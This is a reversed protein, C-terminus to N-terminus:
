KIHHLSCWGADQSVSQKMMILLFIKTMGRSQPFHMLLDTYSSLDLCSPVVLCWCFFFDSCRQHPNQITALWWRLLSAEKRSVAVQYHCSLPEALSRSVLLDQTWVGASGLQGQVGAGGRSPGKLLVRLGWSRLQIFHFLDSTSSRDFMMFTHTFCRM